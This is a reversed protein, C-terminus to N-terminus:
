RKPELKAKATRCAPCKFRYGTAKTGYVGWMDNRARLVAQDATESNWATSHECRSSNCDCRVEYVEVVKITM